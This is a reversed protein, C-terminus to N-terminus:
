APHKIQSECNPAGKKTWSAVKSLGFYSSLSVFVAILFYIVGYICVDLIGGGGPFPLFAVVLLPFLSAAIVAAQSVVSIYGFVAWEIFCRNGIATVVVVSQALPAGILGFERILYYMLGIVVIVNGITVVSMYKVRGTGLLVNSNIISLPFLAFRVALVQMLLGAKVAMEPGVWLELVPYSLGALPVILASSFVLLLVTCRDYFKRLEDIRGQEILKSVYPFQFAFMRSLLTHVQRMLRVPVNYIAVASPGLMAGILFTDGQHRITNFVNCVWSFFGFSFVERMVEHSYRPWASLGVICREKLLSFKWISGLFLGVITATVIGVLSFGSLVLGIRTLQIGTNVVMNTKATLDFREFGRLGSDFVLSTFRFLIGVAALRLAFLAEQRHQSAVSFVHDLLPGSVAFILLAGCASMALYFCWTNSVIMAARDLDGRARYQSVYKLTAQTLGFSLMSSFGIVMNLLVWVGFLEVGLKHIYVPTAVLFLVATLLYELTNFGANRINERTEGTNRKLLRSDSSKPPIGALRKLFSKM